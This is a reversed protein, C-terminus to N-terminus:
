RSQGKPKRSLVVYMCDIVEM